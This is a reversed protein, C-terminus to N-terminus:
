RADDLRCEDEVLDAVCTVHEGDVDVVTLKKLIGPSKKNKLNHVLVPRKKIIRTKELM